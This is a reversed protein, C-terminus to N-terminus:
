GGHLRAIDANTYTRATRPKNMKWYAAVEGLSMGYGNERLFQLDAIATAGVDVISAPLPSSPQSSTLEIESSKESSGEGSTESSAVSTEGSQVCPMGNTQSGSNESRPAVGWYICNIAAQSSFGGFASSSPEGTGEEAPAAGTTAPPTSLSLSPTAIPRLFLSPRNNLLYQPGAAFNTDQAACVGISCIGALVFLLGVSGFFRPM